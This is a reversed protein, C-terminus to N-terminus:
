ARELGDLLVALARRIRYWRFASPDLAAHLLLGDALALLASAFANAPVDVLEGTALGAEIWGRLRGRRRDTAEAFRQRVRPETLITAWLDARLQARSADEGRELM